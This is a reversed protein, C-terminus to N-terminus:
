PRCRQGWRVVPLLEVLDVVDGDVRRRAPLTDVSGVWTGTAEVMLKGQCPRTRSTCTFLTRSPSCFEILLVGTLRLRVFRLWSPPTRTFVAPWLVVTAKLVAPQRTSIRTSKTNQPDTAAAGLTTREIDVQSVSFLPEAGAHSCIIFSM